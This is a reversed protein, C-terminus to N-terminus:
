PAHDQLDLSVGADGTDALRTDAVTPATFCSGRHDRLDHGSFDDAPIGARDFRDPAFQVVAAKPGLTTARDRCRSEAGYFHRQPIDLALHQAYRHVAQEATWIAIAQFDIGVAPPHAAVASSVEGLSALAH